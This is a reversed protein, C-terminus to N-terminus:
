FAQSIQTFVEKDLRKLLAEKEASDLMAHVFGQKILALADWLSLGGCLRSALLFEHTLTTRSIGPNDTNLTLGVGSQWLSRLPYEPLAHTAPAAPDRYGIVELNSSPCLELAIGRNRFRRLLAPKETLTLGHGIRDANLMYAAEWINEPSQGEGAHITVPLCDAFAPGFAQALESPQRCSEDGALDLGVLFGAMSERAARSALTVVDATDASRRDIIWIFRIECAGAGKALQGRLDSLWQIPDSTYKHPSGRLEFYRLNEQQCYDCVARAYPELAAPHGLVASGSLEGPREYASFGKAGTLLGQRPETVQYLNFVLQERSAGLLIAAAHRARRQYGLVKGAYRSPWEWPWQSQALLDAVAEQAVRWESASSADRIARAVQLQTHLGAIGGLHCHLEAKPLARILNEHEPGLTTQRLRNISRPPLRYLHRWNEHREQEALMALYNNLLTQADQERAEVERVLSFEDDTFRCLEGQETVTFNLPFRHAAIPPNDEWATDLIERRRYAGVYAPMLRTATEADLPSAWFAPDPSRLAQPLPEPAVIHLLGLAGFTSAARQLDASMTKRGGALSCIVDGRENALLVSRFILERLRDLEKQTTVQDTDAAMFVRLRVPIQGLALWAKIADVGKLTQESESTLVWLEDVGRSACLARVDKFIAPELHHRYLPCAQSDLAGLIEPVVQWTAGLTAVLILPRTTAGDRHQIMGTDDQNPAM